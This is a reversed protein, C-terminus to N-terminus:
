MYQERSEIKIKNTDYAQLERGNGGCDLRLEKRSIGKHQSM